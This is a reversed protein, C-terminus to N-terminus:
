TEVVVKRYVNNFDYKVIEDISREIENANESDSLASSTNAIRALYSCTGYGLRMDENYWNAFDSCPDYPNDITTLMVQRM